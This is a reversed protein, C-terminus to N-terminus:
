STGQPSVYREVPGTASEAVRLHIGPVLSIVIGSVTVTATETTRNVAVGRDQLTTTDLASLYDLTTRRAADSTGDFRRAAAAGEQAAQEAVNRAHFMLAFQVILMLTFLLAPAILVVQAVSAAGREVEGAVEQEAPPAAPNQAGHRVWYYARCHARYQVRYQACCEVRYPVRTRTQWREPKRKVTM